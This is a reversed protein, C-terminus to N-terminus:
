GHDALHEASLLEVISHQLDKLACPDAILHIRHHTHQSMLHNTDDLCWRSEEIAPAAVTPSLSSRRVSSLSSCCGPLRANHAHYSTMTLLKIRCSRVKGVHGVGCSACGMQEWPLSKLPSYASM